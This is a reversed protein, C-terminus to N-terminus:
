DLLLSFLLLQYLVSVTWDVAHLFGMIVELLSREESFGGFKQKVEKIMAELPAM